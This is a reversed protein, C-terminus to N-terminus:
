VLQKLAIAVNPIQWVHPVMSILDVALLLLLVHLPDVQGMNGTRPPTPALPLRLDVAPDEIVSEMPRVIAVDKPPVILVIILPFLRIVAVRSIWTVLKPVIEQVSLLIQKLVILVLRVGAAPVEPIQVKFIFPRV